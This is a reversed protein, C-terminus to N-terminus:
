ARVEQHAACEAGDSRAFSYPIWPGSMTVEVATRHADRSLEGVARVFEARQGDDVLYAVNLLQPVSRGTLQESQPRHRTAAVAYRRLEGDVAHAQALAHERTEREARRRASARRLYSRGDAPGDGAGGPGRETTPGHVKVAWETRNRLRDLLACLSKERATVARVANRDDLYLTPMPLPVVPGASAAAEVGRHHARVCRELEEPRNLREALAEEGFAAAPVDQVILHLPGAALVRLPGGGDHGPTVSLVEDPVPTDTVAFVCTVTPRPVGPETAPARGAGATSM